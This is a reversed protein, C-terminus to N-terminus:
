LCCMYEVKNAILAVRWSQADVLETLIVEVRNNVRTRIVIDELVVGCSHAALRQLAM